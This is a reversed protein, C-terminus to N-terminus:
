TQRREFSTLTAVMLHNSKWFSERFAEFKETRNWRRERGRAAMESCDPLGLGIALVLVLLITVGHKRM